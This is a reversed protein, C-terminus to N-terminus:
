CWCWCRTKEGESSDGILRVKEKDASWTSRTQYILDNSIHRSPDSGSGGLSLSHSHGKKGQSIWDGETVPKLIPKTISHHSHHGNTTTGTSSTRPPIAAPSRFSDPGTKM